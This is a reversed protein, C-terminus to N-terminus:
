RQGSAPSVPPTVTQPPPDAAPVQLREHGPGLVEYGLMYRWVNVKEAGWTISMFIVVPFWILLVYALLHGTGILAAQWKRVGYFAAAAFTFAALYSPFLLAAPLGAGTLNITAVV